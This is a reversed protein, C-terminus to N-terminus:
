RGTRVGRRALVRALDVVEAPPEGRQCFPVPRGELARAQEACGRLVECIAIVAAPAMMLGSQRGRSDIEAALTELNESLM